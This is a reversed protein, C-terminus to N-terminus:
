IDKKTDLLWKNQCSYLYLGAMLLATDSGM